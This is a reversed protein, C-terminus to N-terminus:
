VQIETSNKVKSVKEVLNKLIKASKAGPMKSLVPMYKVVM